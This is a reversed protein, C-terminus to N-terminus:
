MVESGGKHSFDRRDLRNRWRYSLVLKVFHDLVLVVETTLLDNALYFNSFTDFYYTELSNDNGYISM